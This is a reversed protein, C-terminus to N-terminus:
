HAATAEWPATLDSLADVIMLGPLPAPPHLHGPNVWVPTIGVAAAGRVDFEWHDGVMWVEDPRLGFVQLARQYVRPDPKGFGCEQEILVLDFLAELGFRVVKARQSAAAGNTILALKISQARLRRITEAAGPFVYIAESHIRDYDFALAEVLAEDVIGHVALGSAIIQRRAKPIAMRGARHLALDQWYAVSADRISQVVSALPRDGVAEGHLAVAAEWSAAAVADFAIITDDLDLFIGKPTSL